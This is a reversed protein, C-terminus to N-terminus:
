RCRNSREKGREGLRSEAARCGDGQLAFLMGNLVLMLRVSAAAASM